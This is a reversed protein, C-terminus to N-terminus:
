SFLEDSRAIFQYLTYSTRLKTIKAKNPTGYSDGRLMDRYQEPYKPPTYIVDLAQRVYYESIDEYQEYTQRLEKWIWRVGNKALGFRRKPNFLCEDRIAEEALGYVCWILDYVGDNESNDLGYHREFFLSAIRRKLEFHEKEELNNIKNSNSSLSVTAHISM